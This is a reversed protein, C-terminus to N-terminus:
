GLNVQSTKKKLETLQIPKICCIKRILRKSDINRIQSLNAFSNRGAIKGLFIKYFNIKNSTSLPIALFSYKNYKKIVLVPRAYNEGKGDAEFGINQGLYIWWIDGEKFFVEKHKVDLEKKISNWMDFDKQM